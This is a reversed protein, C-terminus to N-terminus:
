FGRLIRQKKGPRGMISPDFRRGTIECIRKYIHILTERDREDMFSYEQDIFSEIDNPITISELFDISPEVVRRIHVIKIKQSM